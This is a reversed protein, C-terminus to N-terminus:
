AVGPTHIAPKPDYPRQNHGAKKIPYNHRNGRKHVRPYTRKRRGPTIRELIEAIAESQGQNLTDPPFDQRTPPVINLTRIFSLRDPDLEATDAADTM